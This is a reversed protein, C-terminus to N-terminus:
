AVTNDPQQITYSPVYQTYVLSQKFPTWINTNILKYVEKQLDILLDILLQIHTHSTCPQPAVISRQNTDPTESQETITSLPLINIYSLKEKDTAVNDITHRFRHRLMSSINLEFRANARVYKAHIYTCFEHIDTPIHSFRNEVSSQVATSTSIPETATDDHSKTTSETSHVTNNTYRNRNWQDRYYTIESWFETYESNLSRKAHKEILQFIHPDSLATLCTHQIAPKMPTNVPVISTNSLSNLLQSLASKRRTIQKISQTTYILDPDCIPSINSNNLMPNNYSPNIASKSPTTAQSDTNWQWYTEYTHNFSPSSHHFSAPQPDNTHPVRSLLLYRRCRYTPLVIVFTYSVIHMWVIVFTFPIGSLEMSARNFLHTNDTWIMIESIMNLIYTIYTCLMINVMSQRLEVVIDLVDNMTSLAANVYRSRSMTVISIPIFVYFEQLYVCIYGDANNNIDHYRPFTLGFIIALIIMVLLWFGIVQLRYRWSLWKVKETNRLAPEYKVYMSWARCSLAINMIPCHLVSVVLMLRCSFNPINAYGAHTLSILMCQTCLTIIVCLDFIGALIGLRTGRVQLYQTHRLQYFLPLTCIVYITCIIIICLSFIAQWPWTMTTQM